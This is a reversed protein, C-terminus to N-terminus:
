KFERDRYEGCIFPFNLCKLAVNHLQGAVYEKFSDGCAPGVYHGKFWYKKVEKKTLRRYKEILVIDPMM